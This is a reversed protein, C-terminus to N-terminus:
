KSEETRFLEAVLQETDQAKVWEIFTRCLDKSVWWVEQIEYAKMFYLEGAKKTDIFSWQAKEYEDSYRWSMVVRSDSSNNM